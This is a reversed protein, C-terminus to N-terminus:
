FNNIFGVLEPHDVFPNRDGQLEYIASNRAIEQADPPDEQNWKRLFLEETSKIEMKYRVAFYFLARAVNGKHQTPPEFFTRGQIQGIKSNSCPLSRGAPVEAFEFNGRIANMQSNSPFLHHLDSKQFDTPFGGTFRSQPWTHEANMVNHNPIRGPGVGQTFAKQCYVDVVFYTTNQKELYISGFLLTRAQNYGVPRHYYCPRFGNCSRVIEDFQGPRPKHGSNLLVFLLDRLGENRLGAKVQQYFSEGYYSVPGQSVYRPRQFQANSPLPIAILLLAVIKVFFAFRYKTM